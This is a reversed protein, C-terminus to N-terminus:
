KRQLNAKAIMEKQADPSSSDFGFFIAVAAFLLLHEFFVFSDEPRWTVVKTHGAGLTLMQQLWKALTRSVTEAQKSAVTACWANTIVSAGIMFCQVSRWRRLTQDQLGVRLPRPRRYAHRLKFFDSYTEMCNSLLALLGALPFACAFLTIYGIQITLEMYDDFFGELEAKRWDRMVEEELTLNLDLSEGAAGSLAAASSSGLPMRLAKRTLKRRRKKRKRSESGAVSVSARSSSRRGLVGLSGRLGRGIGSNRTSSRRRIGSDSEESESESDSDSFAEALRQMYAASPRGLTAASATSDRWWKVLGGLTGRKGNKDDKNNQETEEEKEDDEEPAQFRVSLRQHNKKTSKGPGKAEVKSSGPVMLGDGNQGSSKRDKDSGLLPASLGSGEKEKEGKGKSSLSSVGVEKEDEKQTIPDPVSTSLFGSSDTSTQSELDVTTKTRMATYMRRIRGKIMSRNVALWPIVAECTIRRVEDVMFLSVLERRLGVIDAEYFAIYVLPLFCDLAEFIFRKLLLASEFESQTRYNELDTLWVAIGRYILNLTQVVIVHIMVPIMGKVTHEHDFVADKRSLRSLVPVYFLGSDHHMYGQMNMSLIMVVIVVSLCAATIFVSFMQWLFRKWGPYTKCPEKTLPDEGEEWRFELRVVETAEMDDSGWLISKASWLRDHKKVFASSWGVIFLSYFPLLSSQQLDDSGLVTLAVASGFIAPLTLFQIYTRLWFFYYAVQINDHLLFMESVLGLSELGLLGHSDDFEPEQLLMGLNECPLEQLLDYFLTGAESLTFFESTTEANVGSFHEFQEADQVEFPVPMGGTKLKKTLRSTEAQRILLEFPALVILYHRAKSRTDLTKRTAAFGEDELFKKLIDIKSEDTKRQFIIITENRPVYLEELISPAGVSQRASTPSAESATSYVSGGAASILSRRKQISAAVSPRRRNSDM